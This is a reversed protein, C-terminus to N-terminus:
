RTSALTTLARLPNVGELDHGDASTQDASVVGSIGEMDVSVYVKLGEARATGTATPVLGAVLLWLARRM